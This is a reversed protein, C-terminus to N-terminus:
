NPKPEMSAGQREPSASFVSRLGWIKLVRTRGILREATREDRWIQTAMYLDPM